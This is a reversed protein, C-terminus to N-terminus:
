YYSFYRSFLTFFMNYASLFISSFTHYLSRHVIGVLSFEKFVCSSLKNKFFVLSYNYIYEIGRKQLIIMYFVYTTANAHNDFVKVLSKHKRSFDNNYQCM